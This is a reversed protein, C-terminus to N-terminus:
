CTKCWPASSDVYSHVFFLFVIDRCGCAVGKGVFISYEVGGDDKSDRLVMWARVVNKGACHGGLFFGLIVSRELVLVSVIDLRNCLFFGLAMSTGRIHGFKQPNERAESITCFGMTDGSRWDLQEM